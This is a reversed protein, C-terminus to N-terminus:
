ALLRAARPAEFLARGLLQIEAPLPLDLDDQEPPWIARLAHVAPPQGRHLVAAYDTGAERWRAVTPHAEPIWRALRKLLGLWAERHETVRTSDLLLSGAAHAQVVGELDADRVAAGLSGTDIGHLALPVADVPQPPDPWSVGLPEGDQSVWRGRIEVEALSSLMWLRRPGLHEAPDITLVLAADSGLMPLAQGMLSLIMPAHGRQPPIEARAAGPRLTVVLPPPHQGEPVLDSVRQGPAAILVAPTAELVARLVGADGLVLGSVVSRALHADQPVLQDLVGRDDHAGQQVLWTVVRGWPAGREMAWQWTGAWSDGPEQGSQIPESLHEYLELRHLTDLELPGTATPDEEAEDHPIRGLRLLHWIPEPRTPDRRFARLFASIAEDRRGAHDLAWGLNNLFEVPPDDGAVAREGHEVADAWREQSLAVLALGGHGRADAEDLQTAEAFAARAAELDGRGLAESARELSPYLPDDTSRTM